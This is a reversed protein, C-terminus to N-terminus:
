VGGGNRGGRAGDLLGCIDAPDSMGLIDAMAEMEDSRFIGSKMRRYFTRTTIGLKDAMQAQTLGKSAMREKLLDTRIM